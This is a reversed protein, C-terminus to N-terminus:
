HKVKSIQNEGGNWWGFAKKWRNTVGTFHGGRNWELTVQSEGLRDALLRATARTCDGVQRMQENASHEESKGLSLYVRTGPAPSHIKAFEMWGEYWLSGSLSAIGGFEQCCYGAWLAFLGGLSYGMIARHGADELLPLRAELFPVAEGTLYALYEEAGGEFPARGEPAKAPWPTYDKEWDAGAAFIVYSPFDATLELLRESMDGGCLCALPWPGDDEKPIWLMGRRGGIEVPQLGAEMM